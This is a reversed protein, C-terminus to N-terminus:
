KSWHDSVVFDTVIPTRELVLGGAYKMSENIIYKADEILEPKVDVVVEDHVQSVLKAGIRRFVPFMKLTAVKLIDAAALM